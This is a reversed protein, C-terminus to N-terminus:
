NTYKYKDHGMDGDCCELLKDRIGHKRTDHLGLEDEWLKQRCAWLCLRQKVFFSLCWTKAHRKNGPASSSRSCETAKNIEQGWIGVCKFSTTRTTLCSQHTQCSVKMRHITSNFLVTHSGKQGRLSSSVNQFIVCYSHLKVEDNYPFINHIYPNFSHVRFICIMLCCSLISDM